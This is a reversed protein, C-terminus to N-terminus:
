APEVVPRSRPEGLMGAVVTVASTWGRPGAGSPGRCDRAGDSEPRRRRPTGAASWSTTEAGSPVRRHAATASYDPRLRATARRYSLGRLSPAHTATAPRSGECLGTPTTEVGSGSPIRSARARGPTALGHAHEGVRRRVPGVARSRRAPAPDVEGGPPRAHAHEGAGSFASDRGRHWVTGGGWRHVGADGDLIPPARVPLESGASRPAQRRPLVPSRGPDGAASRSHGVSQPAPPVLVTGRRFPPTRGLWARRSRRGAGDAFCCRRLLGDRCFPSSWM